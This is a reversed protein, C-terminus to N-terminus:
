ALWDNLIRRETVWHYDMVEQFQKLFRQYIPVWTLVFGVVVMENQEVFDGFADNTLVHVFNVDPATM